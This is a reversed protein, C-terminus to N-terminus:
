RFLSLISQPSQNAISLAQVGLQQQVQLAQLRASAEEMDADVMSGIGTKLSDTLSGVFGAQIDIRKQVSGFDAAANISTQIMGEINGLAAAAGGATSVDISSLASLGGSGANKFQASVTLDNTGANTFALQGPSGSDYDVTLGSVGLSDIANKLGVAVMDSPTTAGVDDATVTYTATKGGITVSVSDGAAFAAGSDDIEIMGTGTGNDLQFGATDGNASVGDSTGFVNKATYNGASLNQATVTISSASVGSGSRDLSALVDVTSQSGDVLNLGNFQAAGVVSAIQDRLAVIDTQIKTRDVNDEQAAVIKGKMQTLLDTVTEAAERAVAVTSSGLALSDSIGKFGEVDSEMVKSIAWVAANDRATSVSKGTSIESQVQNLNSNIGKLTQLAVMASTNTLISSM